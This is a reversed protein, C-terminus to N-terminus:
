EFGSVPQPDLCAAMGEGGDRLITEGHEVSGQQVRHSLLFITIVGSQSLLLDLVVERGSTQCFVPTGRDLGRHVVTQLGSKHDMEMRGEHIAEHARFVGGLGTRLKERVGKINRVGVGSVGKELLHVVLYLFIPFAMSAVGLDYEELVM